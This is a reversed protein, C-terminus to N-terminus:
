LMRYYRKMDPKLWRRLVPITLPWLWCSTLGLCILVLKYVWGWPRKPAVIGVLYLLATAVSASVVVIGWLRRLEPSYQEALVDGRIVLCGYVASVMSSLMMVVAYTVYLPHGPPSVV